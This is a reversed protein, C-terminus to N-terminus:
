AQRRCSHISRTAQRNLVSVHFVDSGQDGILMMRNPEVVVVFRQSLDDGSKQTFSEGLALRSNDHRRGTVTHRNQSFQDSFRQVDYLQLTRVIKHTRSPTVLRKM